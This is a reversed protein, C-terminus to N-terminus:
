SDGLQCQVFFLRASGQGINRFSYINYKPVELSCGRTVVFKESNLTVEILGKAVHFIFLSEGTTRSSKFGEFPFDLLGAAIVDLDADFLPAVRFNEVVQQGNKSPPPLQFSGGDPAWAVVKRKKTEENEFIETELSKSKFWESGEIEPDSEYDYTELKSKKKARPKKSKNPIIRKTQEPMHVVERIEQLPIRQIDRILTSDPDASSDNARSYVIRENRWYALPAIKRRRSRRLGEPPPSPLPSPQTIYIDQSSKYNSSQSRTSSQTSFKSEQTSYNLDSIGDSDSSLVPVENESGPDEIDDLDSEPIKPMVRRPKALAMNKTLKSAKPKTTSSKLVNGKRKDDEIIPSEDSIPSLIVNRADNQSTDREYHEYEPENPDLDQDMYMLPINQYLPEEKPPEMEDKSAELTDNSQFYNSNEEKGHIKTNSSSNDDRETMRHLLKIPNIKRVGLHKKTLSQLINTGISAFEQSKSSSASKSSLWSTEEFFEDIDEMDHRDKALNEKPKIGTKRSQAGLKLLDM